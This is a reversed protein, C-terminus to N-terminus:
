SVYDTVGRSIARAFDDKNNMLLQVDSENDIFATEVLVATMATRKLVILDPRIKLGRDVTNLSNVIQSQICNALAEANGGANYVLCETGKAVGNFANCHISIFIDAQWDNAAACIPVARDSYSSDYYLNDSQMTMVDFGVARLYKAVLEGIEYVINAETVGYKNNVAGSDYTKDHGQNIFVKM